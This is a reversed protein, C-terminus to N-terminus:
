VATLDPAAAKNNDPVGWALALALVGVLGGLLGAALHTFFGKLESSTTRPPKRPQKLEEPPADDSTAAATPEGAGSETSDPSVERSDETGPGEEIPEDAAGEVSIETATGEITQLPRKGLTGDKDQDGFPEVM